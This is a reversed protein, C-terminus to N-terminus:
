PDGGLATDYMAFGQLRQQVLFASALTVPLGVVALGLWLPVLDLVVSRVAGVKASSPRVVCSIPSSGVSRAPRGGIPVRPRSRRLFPLVVRHTAVGREKQSAAFPIM